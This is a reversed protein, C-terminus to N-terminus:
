YLPAHNGGAGQSQTGVDWWSHPILTAFYCSAKLSNIKGAGKCVSVDAHGDLWNVGRLCLPCPISTTM